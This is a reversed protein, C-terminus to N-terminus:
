RVYGTNLNIQEIYVDNMVDKWKYTGGTKRMHNIFTDKLTFKAGIASDAYATFEYNRTEISAKYITM